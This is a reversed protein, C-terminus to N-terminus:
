ESYENLEITDSNGTSPQFTQIQKSISVVQVSNDKLKLKLASLLSNLVMRTCSFGCKISNTNSIIALDIWCFTIRIGVFRCVLASQRGNVKFQENSLINGTVIVLVIVNGEDWVVIVNCIEFSSLLSARFSISAFSLISFLFYFISFQLQNKNNKYCEKITNNSNYLFHQIKWHKPFNNKCWYYHEIQATTNWQPTSPTSINQRLWQIYYYKPQQKNIILSTYTNAAIQHIYNHQPQM